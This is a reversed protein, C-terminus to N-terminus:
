PKKIRFKEQESNFNEKRFHEMKQLWKKQLDSKFHLDFFLKVILGILFFM